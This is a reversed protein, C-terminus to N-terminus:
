PHSGSSATLVGARESESEPRPVREQDRHATWGVLMVAAGAVYALAVVSLAAPMGAAPSVAILGGLLAVGLTGGVQRSTNNLGSALGARPGSVAGVAASVVAPLSLGVGTGALVLVVVVGVGASGLSHSGTAASFQLATAALAALSLGAVSPWRSGLKASLVGSAASAAMYALFMPALREGSQLPGLHGVEEFYASLLFILGLTAFNVLSAATNAALLGRHALLGLPILPASSRREVAALAVLSVVTAGLGTIVVGSTWGRQPGLSLSVSLTGLVAVLATAGKLDARRATVDRSEPLKRKAAVAGALAIPVNILFVTRWGFWMVVAGGILPGTVLAVGSVSTWWGIAAARQSRDPFTASLLSLSSVLVAAGAVGQAARAAILVDVGPALGCAASAASFAVLGTSFVRRRGRRDGLDGFVLMLAAFTLFYADVVWSVLAVSTHLGSRIAHIAVNVVTLDMQTLFQGLCVILLATRAEKSWGRGSTPGAAKNGRSWSSGMGGIQAWSTEPM